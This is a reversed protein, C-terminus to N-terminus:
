SAPRSREGKPRRKMPRTASYTPVWETMPLGPAATRLRLNQAWLDAGGATSLQRIRDAVANNLTWSANARFRPGLANHVGYLDAVFLSNTNSATFVTTAGTIVGFPENTGSGLAFKTAELVDKADTFLGVMESQFSAWDQGVEISFPVFARAMETSVIPQALTPSADTV